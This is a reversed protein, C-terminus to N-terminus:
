QSRSRGGRLRHSDLSRALPLSWRPDGRSRFLGAPTSQQTRHPARQTHLGIALATARSAGHGHGHCQFTVASPPARLLSLNVIVAVVSLDLRRSSNSERSILRVVTERESESRLTVGSEEQLPARQEAVVVVLTCLMVALESIIVSSGRPVCRRERFEPGARGGRPSSSFAQGRGCLCWFPSNEAARSLVGCAWAGARNPPRAM